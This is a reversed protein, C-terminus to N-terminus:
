NEIDNKDNPLSIHKCTTQEKNKNTEKNQNLQRKRHCYCDM